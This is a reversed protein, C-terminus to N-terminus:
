AEEQLTEGTQFRSFRRIIINEGLQAVYELIVENVTKDTDKIFPQELLCTESFYKEMRGEVIKDIVHEPKNEHKAQERLIKKESEVKQSPVDERSIYEPNSAAIQMAIDHVLEQFTENRAVFDTECNVEVLVGIKGGLHIYSDVIGEVAARSTKKQAAAIGKERLYEVAKEVNGSTKELAKKCDMVGAGTKDRLEKVQSRDITM